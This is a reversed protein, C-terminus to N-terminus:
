NTPGYLINKRAVKVRTDSKLIELKAELDDMTSISSIEIQYINPSVFGVIKGDVKHAIDEATAKGEGEALMVKLRNIVVPIGDPDTVIKSTDIPAAYSGDSPLISFNKEHSLQTHKGNGKSEVYIACVILTCLSVIILLKKSM